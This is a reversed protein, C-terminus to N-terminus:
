AVPLSDLIEAEDLAHRDQCEVCYRAWPIARLRKLAIPDDCGQCIGYEGTEMRRLAQEIERLTAFDMRNMAHAIFEEHYLPAQDEEAVSAPRSDYDVSHAALGARAEARKDHLLSRLEALTGNLASGSM